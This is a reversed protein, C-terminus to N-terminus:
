TNNGKRGAPSSRIVLKEPIRLDINTINSRTLQRERDMEALRSWANGPDAEPLQVRINNRLYVDWRRNSQYVLSWVQTYLDSERKLTDIMSWAQRPANNGKIVPLHTFDEVAVGEIVAGSKDIVHHGDDDQYLALATREEITVVLTSPLKREVRVARVWGLTSVRDHITTLDAAFIPSHWPTAIAKQLDDNSTNLRGNIEIREIRLGADAFADLLRAHIVDQWLWGGYGALGIGGAMVALTLFRIMPMQYFRRKQEPTTRYKNLRM